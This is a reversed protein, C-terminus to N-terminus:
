SQLSAGADPNLVVIIRDPESDDNVWVQVRVSTDDTARSLYKENAASAVAFERDPLEIM